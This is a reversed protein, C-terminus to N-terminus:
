QGLKAKARDLPGFEWFDEVKITAPDGTIQGALNFFNIDIKAAEPSGGSVSISKGEVAEKFYPM